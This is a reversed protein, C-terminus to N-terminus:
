GFLLEETEEGTEIDTEEELTIDPETESVTEQEAEESQEPETLPEEPTKETGDTEELDSPVPAQTPKPETRPTNLTSEETKESDFRISYRHLGTGTLIFLNSNVIVFRECTEGPDIDGVVRGTRNLIQVKDYMVVGVYSGSSVVGSVLTNYQHSYLTKHNADFVTVLPTQENGYPFVVTASLGHLTVCSRAIESPAYEQELVCVGASDITYVGSDSYVALHKGSIFDLGFVTIGPFEVTYVPQGSSFSFLLVKSYYEANQVGVVCVALRNGSDSLAMKLCYDSASGWEFQKKGGSSYVFIHSQYGDHNDLSYAYNGRKGIAGCIIAGPATLEQYVSANKEIRCGTGGKDYVFVAKDNIQMEPTAYAHKNTEIERGFADLYQVASNTLMVVGNEYQDIMKVSDVDIYSIVGDSTDSQDRNEGFIHWDTENSIFSVIAILLLVIILSLGLVKFLRKIDSATTKKNRPAKHQKEKDM